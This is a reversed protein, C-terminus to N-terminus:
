RLRERRQRAVEFLIVAGAIGANLSEVSGLMPINVITAAERAQESAGNAEGGVVLASPRSWDVRDYARTGQMDALYLRKGVGLTELVQTWTRCTRIPLRFHSGMGARVVKDSFLDVTGPCAVVMQVGAAEASRILTGANGPDRVGDLLLVLDAFRPAELHPMPVIAAVGQPNVTDALKAFAARSCTAVEIGASEVEDILEHAHRNGAILAPATFLIQPHAGAQWADRVLRVGEILMLGAAERNRRKSLRAAAKIRENNVSTIM